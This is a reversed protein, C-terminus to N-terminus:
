CGTPWRSSRSAPPPSPCTAPLGQRAGEHVARAARGGDRGRDARRRLDRRRARREHRGLPGRRGGRFPDARPGAARAADELHKLPLAHEVVGPIGFDHSVAGTAVVLVDYGVVDGNALVLKRASLDVTSVRAMRVRVNSPRRWRGRVSGRIAYAVNEADLGATAVQYLLPQFTHFNNADLLTVDVATASCAAHRPSAVSAPGSSSWTPDDVAAPPDRRAHRVRGDCGWTLIAAHGDYSLVMRRELLVALADELEGLIVDVDDLRADGFPEVDAPRGDALHHAAELGLAEDVVPVPMRSVAVALQQGGLDHAAVAEGLAEEGVDQVQRPRLGVVLGALPLVDHALRDLLRHVLEEAARRRQGCPLGIGPEFYTSPLDRGSAFTVTPSPNVILRIVSSSSNM